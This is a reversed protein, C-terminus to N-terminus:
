FEINMGFNLIKATPYATEPRAFGESRMYNEPDPGYFNTWTKLNQGNVYISLGRLKLRSLEKKSFTYRIEINRLKIYSADQLLYENMKENPNGGAMGGPRLVPWTPNPNTPTWRGLMPEFYRKQTDSVYALPSSVNDAGQFASSIKFGKYGVSLNMGAIYDPVGSYGIATQDLTNIVGDNNLDAYKYDGPISANTTVKNVPSAAIDALDKYYGLVKYGINSGIRRGEIKRYELENVADDFKRIMNRNYNLQFNISYTFDGIKNQHTLELEYGHNYNEGYNVNPLTEGYTAFSTNNRPLLIDYRNDDYIDGTFSLKNRFLGFEVGINRKLSKEWTIFENGIMSHTYIPTSVMSGPYGFNYATGSTYADLYLFRGTGASPIGTLGISGRVKLRHLWSLDKLFNENSITYGASLAPFFGYRSNKPYNESGNYAGSLQAFYKQGFNYTFNYVLGQNAFPADTSEVEKLERTGIINGAVNHRRFSRAYNLFLQLNTKIFGASGSTVAGLPDEYTGSIITLAKTTKDLSYTAGIARQMRTSIFTADYGFLGKFSLGKTIFDLKQNITFNSELVNNDIDVYGSNLLMVYPNFQNPGLTRDEIHNYLADLKATEEDKPNTYEPFFPIGWAPVCLIRSVLGEIGSYYKGLNDPDTSNGVISHRNELRGAVRIGITTTKTINLDLNSRFNYRTYTPTTKYGKPNKFDKFMGDEDSYGFSTFYKAVKSGGSINLNGQKQLWSTKTLAKYWNVNPYLLPDGTGSKYIALDEDSFLRTQGVNLQAETHLLASEYAPLVSPLSTPSNIGVNTSFSVKAKGELGSKTTVVIVGNAGKLGYLATSAADKLINIDEIENPDIDGFSEREVGDVVILATSNNSVRGRIYLTSENKGPRGSEQRAIVGPVKGMLANTVNTVPSKLIEDGSISSIAATVESKRQSTFGTVVVQELGISEDLLTVSFLTKTGIAIEQMKMGVFTFTLKQANLPVNIEFKGNSDTLTGINNIGKVVVTAGPLPNGDKDWVTGTIRKTQPQQVGNAVKEIPFEDKISQNKLGSRKNPIGSSNEPSDYSTFAFVSSSLFLLLTISLIGNLWYYIFREKSNLKM